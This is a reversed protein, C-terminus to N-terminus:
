SASCRSPPSGASTSSRRPACYRASARPSAPSAAGLLILAGAAGLGLLAWASPDHVASRHRLREHSTRGPPFASWAIGVLIGGTVCAVISAIFLKTISAKSM